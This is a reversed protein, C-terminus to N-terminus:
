FNKEYEQSTDLKVVSQGFYFKMGFLSTYENQLKWLKRGEYLKSVVEFQHVWFAADSQTDHMSTEYPSSAFSALSFFILSLAIIRTPDGSTWEPGIWDVIM